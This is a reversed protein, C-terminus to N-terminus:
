SRCLAYFPGKENYIWRKIGEGRIKRGLAVNSISMNILKEVNSNCKM